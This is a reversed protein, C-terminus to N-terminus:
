KTEKRDDMACYGDCADDVSSGRSGDEDDSDSGVESGCTCPSCCSCEIARPLKACNCDDNGCKKWGKEDSLDPPNDNDYWIKEDLDYVWGTRQPDYTFTTSNNGVM